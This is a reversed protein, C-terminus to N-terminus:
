KKWEKFLSEYPVLADRDIVIQEDNESEIGDLIPIPNCGGTLIGIQDIEFKNGCNQCILINGEQTYYGKGSNYCNQCTNLATRVTGDSAKVAMVEMYVGNSEYPYLKMQDTIDSKTVTLDGGTTIETDGINNQTTHNIKVLIFLVIVAIVSGIIIILKKNMGGQPANNNTKQTMKLDGKSLIYLLM